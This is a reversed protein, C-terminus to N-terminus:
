TGSAEIALSGGNLRLECGDLNPGDPVLALQFTLGDLEITPVGHSGIVALDAVAVVWGKPGREWIAEGSPGRSLEASGKDWAVLVVPEAMAEAEIM